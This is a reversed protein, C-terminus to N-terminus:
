LSRSLEHELEDLPLEPDNEYRPILYSRRRTKRFKKSIFYYLFCLLVFMILGCGTYAAAAQFGGAGNSDTSALRRCAFTADSGASGATPSENGIVNPIEPEKVEEFFNPSGMNCPSGIITDPSPAGEEPDITAVHLGRKVKPKASGSGHYRRRANIDSRSVLPRVPELGLPSAPERPTNGPSGKSSSTEASSPTATANPGILSTLTLVTRSPPTRSTGTRSAAYRPKVGQSASANTGRLLRSPRPSWGSPILRSPNVVTLNTPNVFGPNRGVPPGLGMRRTPLEDASM